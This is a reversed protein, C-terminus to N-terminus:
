APRLMDLKVAVRNRRGLLELLVIVREQSTAAVFVARLDAMPGQDIVVTDGPKFMPGDIRHLRSTPDSTRMLADIIDSPVVAPEESFRVLGSVGTTSRIPGINDVGLELRIFLYRPFLPEVVDTWVGRRRRKRLLRPLYVEWGQRKLNEEAVNEKRPKTHVLYWRKM